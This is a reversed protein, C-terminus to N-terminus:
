QPNKYLWYVVRDVLQDSKRTFCSFFYKAEDPTPEQYLSDTDSHKSATNSKIYVIVDPAIIERLEKTPCIMDVLKVVANSEDVAKRMNKAALIRGEMSFDQNNTLNRIYDNNFHAAYCEQLFRKCFYSKGSGNKGTVLIIM